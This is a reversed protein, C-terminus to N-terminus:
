RVERVEDAVKKEVAQKELVEKENRVTAVSTEFIFRLKQYELDATQKKLYAIKEDFEALKSQYQIVTMEEAM